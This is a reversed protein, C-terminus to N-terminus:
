WRPHAYARLSSTPSNSSPSSTDNSSISTSLCSNSIVGRQQEPSAWDEADPSKYPAAKLPREEADVRSGSALHSSASRPSPSPPSPSAIAPCIPAVDQLSEERNRATVLIAPLLRVSDLIAASPDQAVAPAAVLAALPRFHRWPIAARRRTRYGNPENRM